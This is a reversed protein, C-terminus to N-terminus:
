QYNLNGGPSSEKEMIALIEHITENRGKHRIAAVSRMIRIYELLRKKRM